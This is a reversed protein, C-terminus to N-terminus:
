NQVSNITQIIILVMGADSSQEKDEEDLPRKNSEVVVDNATEPDTSEATSRVVSVSVDEDKPQSTSASASTAPEHTAPIVKPTVSFHFAVLHSMKILLREGGDVM